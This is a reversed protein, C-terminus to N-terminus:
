YTARGGSLDFVAGTNFSCASSSLWLLMAALEQVDGFRGMPIKDLLRQTREPAIEQNRRTMPTDLVTPAICNVLVGSTAFEKGLSKTLAMVGAKAASYAVTYPNGEKGSTSGINVVRGYGAAVMWPMVARCCHFVGTLNVAITDDWDRLSADALATPPRIIGANNLLVDIRGWRAHTAAAARAVSDYDRVNVVQWDVHEAGGLSRAAAQLPASAVDWLSVRARAARLSRAAELGAGSAAGTVVAVQDSFDYQVTGM